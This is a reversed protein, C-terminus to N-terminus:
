LEARAVDVFIAQQGVKKPGVLEASEEVNAHTDVISVIWILQLFDGM